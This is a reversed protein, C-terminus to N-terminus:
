LTERNRAIARKESRIAFPLEPAAPAEALASVPKALIRPAIGVAAVLGLLKALFKKRTHPHSV